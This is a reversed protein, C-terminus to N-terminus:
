ASWWASLYALLASPASLGLPAAATPAATSAATAAAASLQVVQEHLSVAARAAAAEARLYSRERRAAAADAFAIVALVTMAGFALGWLAASRPRCSFLTPM